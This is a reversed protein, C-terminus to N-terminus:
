RSPDAPAPPASELRRLVQDALDRAMADRLIGEEHDKALLQREDFSFNRTLEIRQPPVVESGGREISYEVVYFIEYEQPTNRASVSLVRRGSKDSRVRIVADAEAASPAREAGVRELGRLLELSFASLEDRTGLHVRRVGEPLAASGQLRYGCGAALLALPMLVLLARRRVPTM